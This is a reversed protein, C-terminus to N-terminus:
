STANGTLSQIQRLIEERSARLDAVAEQERQVMQSWMPMAAAVLITMVTTIVVLAVLTFGQQRSGAGIPIRCGRTCRSQNLTGIRM